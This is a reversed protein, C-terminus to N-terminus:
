DLMGMVGGISPSSEVLYVRYGLGSLELSAQIGGVGGGVVMVSGLPSKGGPGGPHKEMRKEREAM